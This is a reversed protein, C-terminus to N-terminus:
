FEEECQNETSKPHVRQKHEAFDHICNPELVYSVQGKLHRPPFRVGKWADTLDDGVHEEVQQQLSEEEKLSHKHTEKGDMQNTLQDTEQVHGKEVGQVAELVTPEIFSNFHM